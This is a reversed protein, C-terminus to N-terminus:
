LFTLITSDVFTVNDPSFDILIDHLTVCFFIKFCYFFIYINMLDIFCKMPPQNDKKVHVYQIPRIYM